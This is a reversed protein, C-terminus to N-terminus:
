KEKIEKGKNGKEKMYEREDGRGEMMKM